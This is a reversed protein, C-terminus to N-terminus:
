WSATDLARWSDAAFDYVGGTNLSSRNAGGLPPNAGGWVVMTTGVGGVCNSAAAHLYRGLPANVASIPAWTDAAPDYMAGTNLMNVGNWGGWVLLNRSVCVSTHQRRAAPANVM